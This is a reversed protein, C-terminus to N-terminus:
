EPYLLFPRRREKFRELGSGWGEVIAAPDRGAELQERLEPGGALRDFHKPIWGFQDPHVARVVALLHVAVATPDYASRDTVRLRIGAVLTDGYKGDGPKSPTFSVGQLAVGAPRAARV